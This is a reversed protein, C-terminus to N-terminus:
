ASTVSPEHGLNLSATKWGGVGGLRSWPGDDPPPPSVRSHITVPYQAERDLVTPGYSQALLASKTAVPGVVDFALTARDASMMLDRQLTYAHDEEIATLPAITVNAVGGSARAINRELEIIPIPGPFASAATGTVEALIKSTTSEPIPVSSPLHPWVGLLCAM